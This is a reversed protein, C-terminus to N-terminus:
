TQTKNKKKLCFVAYSIKVHSSNLRTSKRDVDSPLLKRATSPTEISTSRPWVTPTTPSDPQPLLTVARETIRSTGSGGPRITPPCIPLAAPLSPPSHPLTDYSPLISSYSLVSF